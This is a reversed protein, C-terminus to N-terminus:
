ATRRPVALVVKIGLSEIVEDASHFGRDLCDVIIAAPLSVFAALAMAILVIMGRRHAPSAPVTPPAAITVTVTRRRDLASATRKQERTSLYLLYSQEDAKAESEVDAEDFARGSPKVIQAETNRGGREIAALSARHNAVDAQDHALKERLLALGRDRDTPQSSNLGQQAAAIAAKAEAVEHDADRVLPYNPAYRLLFHARKTEATRLRNGLNQLLPDGTETNTRPGSEQQTIKIKELDSQIRREDAAIAQEIARSQSAAATLQTTSSTNANSLGQTQGFQSLGAEADDL